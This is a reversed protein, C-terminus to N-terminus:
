RRIQPIRREKTRSAKLDIAALSQQNRVLDDALLEPLEGHRISYGQQEIDQAILGFFTEDHATNDYTSPFLNLAVM